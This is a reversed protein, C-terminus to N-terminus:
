SEFHPNYNVLEKSSAQKNCPKLSPRSNVFVRIARVGKHVFGHQIRARMETQTQTRWRKAPSKRSWCHCATWTAKARKRVMKECVTYVCWAPNLGKPTAKCFCTASSLTNRMMPFDWATSAKRHVPRAWRKCVRGFIAM